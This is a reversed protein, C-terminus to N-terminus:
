VHGNDSHCASGLAATAMDGRSTLIMGWCDGEDGAGALPRHRESRDDGVLQWDDFVKDKRQRLWIGIQHPSPRDGKFTLAAAWIDPDLGTAPIGMEASKGVAEKATWEREGFLEHLAEIM